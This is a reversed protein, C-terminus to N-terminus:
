KVSPDYHCHGLNETMLYTAERLTLYRISEVHFLYISTSDFIPITTERWIDQRGAMELDVLWHNLVIIWFGALLRHCIMM